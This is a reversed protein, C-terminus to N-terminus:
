RSNVINKIEATADWIDQYKWGLERLYKNLRGRATKPPVGDLFVEPKSYILKCVELANSSLSKYLEMFDNEFPKSTYNEDEALLDIDKGSLADHHKQQSHCYDILRRSVLKQLFTSFCAKDEVYKDFAEVLSVCAESFLEEEPIGTTRNFSWALKHLQNTHKIALAQKEEESFMMQYGVKRNKPTRIGEYKQKAAIELWLFM